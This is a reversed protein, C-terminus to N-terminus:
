GWPMGLAARCSPYCDKMDNEMVEVETDVVDVLCM